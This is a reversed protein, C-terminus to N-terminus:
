VLKIIYLIQHSVMLEPNTNMFNVLVSIFIMINNNFLAASHSFFSSHVFIEHITLQNNGEKHALLITKTVMVIPIVRRKCM